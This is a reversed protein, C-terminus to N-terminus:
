MPHHSWATSIQSVPCLCIRVGPNVTEVRSSMHGGTAGTRARAHVRQLAEGAAAGCVM